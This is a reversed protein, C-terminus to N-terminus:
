HREKNLLKSILDFADDSVEAVKAPNEYIIKKCCVLKNPDHFPTRGTLMEYIVVGLAWFDVSFRYRADNIGQILEPSMYECTGNCNEIRDMFQSHGFDCLMINGSRTILINEPKLDYYIIGKNHMNELALLIEASVIRVVDEPIRVNENLFRRLDGKEAYKLVFFLAKEDQFTAILPVIYPSDVRRLIQLEKKQDEPRFKNYFLSKKIKKLAFKQKTHKHEALFVQATAGRGLSSLVGFDKKSYKSRSQPQGSPQLLNYSSFSERGMSQTICSGM